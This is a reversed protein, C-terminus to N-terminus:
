KNISNYSNNSVIVTEVNGIFDYLNYSSTYSMASRLYDTFNDVWQSMTYEVVQIKEIGESTKIIDNGLEKQAKKTSMGYHSKLFKEGAKFRNLIDESYQVILDNNYRDVTEGASELMKNFVSGCMVYDAGLALAKIVDSYGKIGGDAIIYAPNKLGLSINFCDSILSAIPAHIATNSSTICASGTGIGIRVYDVGAESLLRYTEPNAINGAMIKMRDGYFSKAIKITDHLKKMHGNAIDILVHMNKCDRIMKFERCYDLTNLESFEDLSVACWIENLLLNKRISFDVTRPIIPTIKNEIFLKYNNQDVVSAMPATFLPLMNNEHYPNCESRSNIHSVPAPMIFIDNLTYKITSHM